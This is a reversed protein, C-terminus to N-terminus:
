PFLKKFRINSNTYYPYKSLAVLATPLSFCHIIHNGLASGPVLRLHRLVFCSKILYLEFHENEIKPPTDGINHSCPGWSIRGFIMLIHLPRVRKRAAPSSATARPPHHLPIPYSTHSPMTRSTYANTEPWIFNAVERVSRFGGFKQYSKPFMPCPFRPQHFIYNSWIQKTPGSFGLWIGGLRFSHLDVLCKAQTSSIPPLRMKWECSASAHFIPLDWLTLCRLLPLKLRIKFVDCGWRNKKKLFSASKKLIEGDNKM